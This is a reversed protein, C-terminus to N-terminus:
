RVRKRVSLLMMWRSIDATDAQQGNRHRALMEESSMEYQVEFKRIQADIASLSGNPKGDRARRVLDDLTGDKRPQDMKTLDALSVVHRMATGEQLSPGFPVPHLRLRVNDRRPQLGGAAALDNESLVEPWSESPRRAGAYM